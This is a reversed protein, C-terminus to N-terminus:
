RALKDAFEEDNEYDVTTLSRKRRNIKKPRDMSKIVDKDAYQETYKYMNAFAINVVENELHDNNAREQISAEDFPVYNPKCLSRIAMEIDGNPAILAKTRRSEPSVATGPKQKPVLKKKLQTSFQDMEWAYFTDDKEVNTRCNHEIFKRYDEKTKDSRRVLIRKKMDYDLARGIIKYPQMHPKTDNKRPMVKVPRPTVVISPLDSDSMPNPTSPIPTPLASVGITQVILLTTFGIILWSSSRLSCRRPLFPTSRGMTPIGDEEESTGGEGECTSRKATGM